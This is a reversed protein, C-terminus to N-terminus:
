SDARRASLIEKTHLSRISDTEAPRHGASRQLEGFVQQPRGASVPSPGRHARSSHKRLDNQATSSSDRYACLFNRDCGTPPASETVRSFGYVGAIAFRDCSSHARRCRVRTSTANGGCIQYFGRSLPFFRLVAQPQGQPNCRLRVKIRLPCGRRNSPSCLPPSSSCNKRKSMCRM